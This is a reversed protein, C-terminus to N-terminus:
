RTPAFPALENPTESKVIQSALLKGTLPGLTVGWMGHGGAVFVRPSVTGGILPLGDATCPRSGVWEDTRQDLDTGQLLPQAAAAIASIRRQDLPADAPRFEMMGAVRFKTDDLPTCAVRQSPFYVPGEPMHEMEVSFSYGRGAQVIKRVGFKDALQNLWTGTAIVVADSRVGEGDGTQVRVEPGNDQISTVEGGTRLTGGREIFSDALAHVFQGPNIFRQEKLLLGAGIESSLSPEIDRAERGTLVEYGIEQGAANIHGFEDLLTAREEETRYAALFRNTDKTPAAVGGQTLDDFAEFARRNMPIYHQMAQEWRKQTSHRVFGLLFQILRRNTTVPVYVPSAPSVLAKIGSKLIAPEPLPTTIGPTLWGANGWSSGAAPGVRDVVTVDIGHEQLFWGTALGVMGAGVVTVSRPTSSSASTNVM